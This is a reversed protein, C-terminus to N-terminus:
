KHYDIGFTCLKCDRFSCPITVLKGNSVTYIRQRILSYKNPKVERTIPHYLEVPNALHFLQLSSIYNTRM